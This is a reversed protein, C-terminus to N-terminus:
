AKEKIGIIPPRIELRIGLQRKVRQQLGKALLIVDRCNGKGLHVVMGPSLPTLQWERLRTGALGSTRLLEAPKARRPFRFLAGSRAPEGRARKRNSRILIDCLIAQKPLEPLREKRTVELSQLERGKMWRIRIPYGQLCSAEGAQLLGGVSGPWHALEKGWGGIGSTYSWLAASGLLLGEETREVGEFRGGLRIVLGNCGGDRVLWDEFPWHIRWRLRERRAAKLLEALANRDSVTAWYQAPGGVRLPTHRHLPEEARVLAGEIGSLVGGESERM